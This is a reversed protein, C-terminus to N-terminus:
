GEPKSVLGPYVGSASFIYILLLYVVGSVSLFSFLSDVGSLVSSRSLSLSLSRSLAVVASLLSHAAGPITGGRPHVGARPAPISKTLNSHISSRINQPRGSSHAIHTPELPAGCLMSCLATRECAQSCEEIVPWWLLTLNPSSSHNSRVWSPAWSRLLRIQIM